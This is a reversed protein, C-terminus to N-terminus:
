RRRKKRPKRRSPTTASPRLISGAPSSAPKEAAEEEESTETEAAPTTVRLIPRQEAIPRRVPATAPRKQAMRAEWWRQMILVLPAAIFISSYTGATIGIFLSFALPKVAVGGVLLIAWLALATTLSTNISRPMTELLSYNVIRELSWGRRVRLNERIRDYIVVTDQVSYGAVTLLAAIFSSNVEIQSWATFGILVLVDHALAFLAGLSFLWGAGLIQYRFWIFLSVLLLGFVTAWIAARTLEGGVVSGIFETGAEEIKPYKQRLTQLIEARWRESERESQIKLRILLTDGEAIQIVPQSPLNLGRLMSRVESSIQVEERTTTAVKEPFKFQYLAGGAFDLGLNFGRGFLGVLGVLMVAIAIGLWLKTKGVIDFRETTQM